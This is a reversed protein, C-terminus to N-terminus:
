GKILVLTFFVNCHKTIKLKLHIFLLLLVTMRDAFFKFVDLLVEQYLKFPLNLIENRM